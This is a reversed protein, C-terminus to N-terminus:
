LMRKTHLFLSILFGCVMFICCVQLDVYGTYHLGTIFGAVILFRSALFFIHRFIAKSKGLQQNNSLGDFLSKTQRKFLFAYLIGTTIGGVASAVLSIPMHDSKMLKQSILTIKITTSFHPDLLCIKVMQRQKPMM